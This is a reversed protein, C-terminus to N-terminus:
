GNEYTSNFLLHILSLNNCIFSRKTVKRNHSYIEHMSVFYMYSHLYCVCQRNHFETFNRNRRM